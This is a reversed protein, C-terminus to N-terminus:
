GRSQRWGRVLAIVVAIGLSFRLIDPVVGRVVGGLVLANAIVMLVILILIQPSPKYPQAM